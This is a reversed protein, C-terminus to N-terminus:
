RPVFRSTCDHSAVVAQDGQKGDLNSSDGSSYDVLARGFRFGRGHEITQLSGISVLCLTPLHNGVAVSRSDLAVGKQWVHTRSQTERKM